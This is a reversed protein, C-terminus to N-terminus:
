LAPSFPEPDDGIGVIAHAGALTITVTAGGDVTINSTTLTQQTGDGYSVSLQVRATEPSSNPNHVSITVHNDTFGAVAVQIDPYAAASPVALLSLLIACVILARKFM